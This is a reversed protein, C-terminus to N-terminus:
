WFFKAQGDSNMSFDYKTFDYIFYKRKTDIFLSKNKTLEVDRNVKQTSCNENRNLVVLCIYFLAIATWEKM